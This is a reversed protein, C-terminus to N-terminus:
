EGTGGEQVNATLGSFSRTMPLSIPMGHRLRGFTIGRQADRDTRLKERPLETM